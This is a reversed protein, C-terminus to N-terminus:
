KLQRTSTQTCFETVRWLRKLHCKNETLKSHLLMLALQWLRQWTQLHMILCPDNGMRFDPLLWTKIRTLVTEIFWMPRLSKPPPFCFTYLKYSASHIESGCDSGQHRLTCVSTDPDGDLMLGPDAESLLLCLFVDEALISVQWMLKIRLLDRIPELTTHSPHLSLQM